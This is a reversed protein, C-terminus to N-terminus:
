RQRVGTATETPKKGYVKITANFIGLQGKLAQFPVTHAHRLVLGYPGFFWKSKHDTVCQDIWARGIIGGRKLAEIPPLAIGLRSALAYALDADEAITQAAHIYVEGRYAFYKSRNEIDKHGMAILTAWPQRISICKVTKNYM